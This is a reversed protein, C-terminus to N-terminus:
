LMRRRQLNDDAQPQMRQQGIMSNQHNLMSVSNPLMGVNNSAFGMMNSAAAQSSDFPRNAFGMMNSNSAAAQSSGFDTDQQNLNFQCSSNSPRNSSQGIGLELPMPEATMHISHRHMMMRPRPHFVPPSFMYQQGQYQPPSNSVVPALYADLTSSPHHTSTNFTEAGGPLTPASEVRLPNNSPEETKMFDTDSLWKDMDNLEDINMMELDPALSEDDDAFAMVPGGRIPLPSLHLAEIDFNVPMCGTSARRRIKIPKKSSLPSSITKKREQSADNREQSADDFLDDYQGVSMADEDRASYNQTSTGVGIQKGFQTYTDEDINSVTETVDDEISNKGDVGNRSKPKERLLHMIKVMAKDDSVEVWVKELLLPNITNTDESNSDPVPAIYDGTQDEVLFRGGMNNIAQKINVAIARKNKRRKEERFTPRQAKVLSRYHQNGPHNDFLAGRGCLVDQLSILNIMHIYKISSLIFCRSRVVAFLIPNM